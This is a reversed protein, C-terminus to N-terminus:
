IYFVRLGSSNFINLLSLLLTEKYKIIKLSRKEKLSARFIRIMYSLPDGSKVSIIGAIM